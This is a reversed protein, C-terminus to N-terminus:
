VAGGDNTRQSTEVTGDFEDPQWVRGPSERSDTARYHAKPHAPHMFEIMAFNAVDMLWETNGDKAYRELRAMLSKIADVKEPYAEAVPGYKHFSVAMRDVMGQHFPISTESPPVSATTKLTIGDSEIHLADRFSRCTRTGNDDKYCTCDAQDIPCEPENPTNSGLPNPVPIGHRRVYCNCRCPADDTEMHGCKSNAFQLSM